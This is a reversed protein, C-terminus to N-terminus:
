FIQSRPTRPVIDPDDWGDAWQKVEQRGPLVENAVEELEGSRIKALLPIEDDLFDPDNWGEPELPNVRDAANRIDDRWDPYTRDDTM